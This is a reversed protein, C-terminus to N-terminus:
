ARIYGEVDELRRNGAIRKKVILYSYHTASFFDIKEIIM